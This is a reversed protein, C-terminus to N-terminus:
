AVEENACPTRSQACNTRLIDASSASLELARSALWEGLERAGKSANCPGCAPTLNEPDDSGGRSRPVIHDLQLRVSDAGCYACRAGDRALVLERHQGYGDRAHLLDLRQRVRRAQEIQRAAPLYHWDSDRPVFFEALVADVAAREAETTARAVRYTLAAPIPKETAYYRDLLLTYVGHELASLHGTDRAYDGLHRTYYNM